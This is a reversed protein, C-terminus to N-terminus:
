EHEQIDKEVVDLIEDLAFSKSSRTIRKVSCNAALASLHRFHAETNGLGKIFNLRYTNNKLANFKEIGKLNELDIGDSNKTHLIYVGGLTLAESHFQGQVLMHHKNLKTRVRAYREPEMGLKTLSDAWLKVGPYGAYIIPKNSNDLSVVSIDDSLLHYGRGLLGAALTSKGAGSVGSFIYGKGNISISSGHMPLMGRQHILAGFASGLLFLRVDAPEADGYPQIIIRVGGEAYFGAIHDVNLLFQGPSAEFRVGKFLPDPLQGPIVGTKITIDPNNNGALFEPIEIESEINLGFAKYRYIM